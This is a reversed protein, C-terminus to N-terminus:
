PKAACRQFPRRRSSWCVQFRGQGAAQRLSRLWLSPPGAKVPQEALLAAADAPPLDCLRTGDETTHLSPDDKPLGGASLAVGSERRRPKKASASGPRSGSGGAAGVAASAKAAATPAAAPDLAAAPAKAGGATAAVQLRLARLWLTPPAAHKPQVALLAGAEKASLQSLRRGDDTAHRSPHDSPLAEQPLLSAEDEADSGGDAAAAGGRINGAAGAAAKGGARRRRLPAVVLHSGRGVKVGRRYVGAAPQAASQSAAPQPRQQGSAPPAGGASAGGGTAVGAQIRLAKLFNSAPGPKQPPQM